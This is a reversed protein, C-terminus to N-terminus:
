HAVWRCCYTFERRKNDAQKFWFRNSSLFPRVVFVRTDGERAGNKRDGMVELHRKLNGIFCKKLRVIPSFYPKSNKTEKYSRWSCHDQDDM